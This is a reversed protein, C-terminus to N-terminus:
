KILALRAGAERLAYYYDNLRTFVDEQVGALYLLGGTRDVCDSSSYTISPAERRATSKARWFVQAAIRCKTLSRCRVRLRCM